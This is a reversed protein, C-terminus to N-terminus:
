LHGGFNNTPDQFEWEDDGGDLDANGLENELETDLEENEILYDKLEDGVISEDVEIEITTTKYYTRTLTVQVKRTAM